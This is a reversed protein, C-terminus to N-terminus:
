KKIAEEYKENVKKWNIINFFADIYNKKKQQYNLYYAHEWVDLALIPTGKVTANPMLPNDQNQTSTIQLKGSNDVILWAWGSGFQKNAVESFQKKFIEFSGFDANISSALTDKAIGGAKPSISEWFVTHNYFGGANNRLDANTIDLKSLITEIPLQELDTGALVKNLANTYALYHKAYHIEMTSADISPALADYSYGLKQVNFSGREARIDDPEGMAVKEQARPLPVQVETYKKNNCSFIAVLISFLLVNLISKKM